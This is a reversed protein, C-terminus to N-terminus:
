VTKAELNRMWNNWKDIMQATGTSLPGRAGCHNCTVAQESIHVQYNYVTVMLGSSIRCWPCPHPTEDVSIKQQTENLVKM